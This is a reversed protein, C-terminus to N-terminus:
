ELGEVALRLREFPGVGRAVPQGRADPGRVEVARVAEGRLQLAPDDPHVAPHEPVQARREAAHLFRADAAFPAPVRKPEEGLGLVDADPDLLADISWLFPAM